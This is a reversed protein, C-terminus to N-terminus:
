NLKLEKVMVHERKKPVVIKLLGNECFAEASEFDTDLPLRITRAFKGFKREQVVIRGYHIINSREGSVVLNVNYGQTFFAICIDKKDIGAMDMFIIYSDISDILDFRASKSLEKRYYALQSQLTKTRDSVVKQWENTQKPPQQNLKNYINKDDMNDSM